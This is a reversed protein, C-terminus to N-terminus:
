DEPYLYEVLAKAHLLGIEKLQINTYEISIFPSLKHAAVIIQQPAQRLAKIRAIKTPYPKANVNIYNRLAKEYHPTSNLDLTVSIPGINFKM